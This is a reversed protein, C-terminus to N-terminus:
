GGSAPTKGTDAFERLRALQQGLVQDVVPALKATEMTFNGSARFTLTIKTGTGAPELTFAMLADVAMDQLPGFAGDLKLRRGPEAWVVRSHQVSGGGPLTECYCGGAKADMVLNKADGSWTHRPHWWRAPNTLSTYVDTPPATSTVTSEITFLTPQVDRVDAQALCCASLSLLVLDLRKM